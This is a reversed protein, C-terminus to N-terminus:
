REITLGGTSLRRTIKRNDSICRMLDARVLEEDSSAIKISDKINFFTSLQTSLKRYLRCDRSDSIESLNNSFQIKKSSLNNQMLIHNVKPDSNLLSTYFYLTDMKETLEVQKMQILDYESTKDLIRSVEVSSTKMFGWFVCVALAVSAALSLSFRVIAKHVKDSNKAQM